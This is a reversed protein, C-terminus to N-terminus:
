KGYPLTDLRPSMVSSNEASSGVVRNRQWSDTSSNASRVVHQVVANAVTSGSHTGGQVLLAESTGGEHTPVDLTDNSARRVYAPQTSAATRIRYVVNDVSAAPSEPGHSSQALGYVSVFRPAACAYQTCTAAISMYAFSPDLLAPMLTCGDACHNQATSGMYMSLAVTVRWSASLRWGGVAAPHEPTLWANTATHINVHPNSPSSSPAIAHARCRSRVRVTSVNSSSCSDYVSAMLIMRSVVTSRATSGPNWSVNPRPTSADTSSTSVSAAVTRYPPPMGAADIGCRRTGGGVCTPSSSSVGMPKPSMASKECLSSSSSSLMVCETYFDHTNNHTM